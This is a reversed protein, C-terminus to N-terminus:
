IEKNHSILWVGKVPCCNSDVRTLPCTVLTNAVFLLKSPNLQVRCCSRPLLLTQRNRATWHQLNSVEGTQRHYVLLWKRNTILLWIQIGKATKFKNDAQLLFSSIDIFKGDDKLHWFTQLFDSVIWYIGAGSSNSTPISSATLLSLKKIGMIASIGLISIKLKM